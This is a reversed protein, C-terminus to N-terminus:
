SSVAVSLDHMYVAECLCEPCKGEKIKKKEVAIAYRFHVLSKDNTYGEVVISNIMSTEQKVISGPLISLSTTLARGDSNVALIPIVTIALLM